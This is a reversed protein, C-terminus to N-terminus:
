YISVLNNLFDYLYFESKPEDKLGRFILSINTILIQNNTLCHIMGSLYKNMPHLTIM